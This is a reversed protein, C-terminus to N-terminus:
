IYILMPGLGEEADKGEPLWPLSPFVTCKSIVCIKNHWDM